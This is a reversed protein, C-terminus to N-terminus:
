KPNIYSKLNEIYGEYAKLGKATIKLKTLPRNNRFSKSVQVYGAEELKTIQVSINGATAGTAERLYTFEAEKMSVLLTIIALRLQSHLLPDLDKFM